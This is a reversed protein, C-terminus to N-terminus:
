VEKLILCEALVIMPWDFWLHFHCCPLELDLFTPAVKIHLMQYNKFCKLTALFHWFGAFNTTKGHMRYKKVEFITSFYCSFLLRKSGLFWVRWFRENKLKFIHLFVPNFILWQFYCSFYGNRLLFLPLTYTFLVTCM